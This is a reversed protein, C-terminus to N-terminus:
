QQPHGFGIDDIFVLGSGGASPNDRDGLGITLTRVNNLNVGALDSFPILWETWGSRVAADPHTVVAVNGGTDEVVVYMTELDNGGTPQEVGIEAVQWNGAVNGTTSIDSFVAGTAQDANHSTLALGILVPDSMTVDVADTGQQQWNEGDASLYGTFTNGERVIRVYYPPAIDTLTRSSDSAADAEARWQFTAGDGEGGTIAILANVAGAETGQRIMVGGKVWGNPAADIADVRATLSGDGTLTKYAYRFEDATNWIDAGIANMVITGDATELFPPAQGAVYLRLTDAGNKDLDMGGLDFEAESYYPAASNDYALPMSQGGRHVVTKEAFPAMLYGVTSASGNIWGDIWADYILNDEDNYSEMDDIVAYAQTTFDWLPGEWTAIAEAENVENVRWYYTQGFQLSDPTLEAQTVADALALAEPHTGLYVEHVAAERGARWSLATAPDVGTAGGVPQPQRPQVPISLFRIESLGYQGLTGWGSEITLRVFRAAVGQMDITTNATYTATATARAFEVMGLSMWEAGDLSYEVMVDKVGFGLVIEFQVNYNWVLMQHLKYVGDFEYQIYPSEADTPTILWMDPADISHEDNANLGSGNVTNEPGAGTGSVVNSTAVVDTIPYAFPEVTFSWLDGKFVARDPTANVEDVRWSYTQGFELVAPPAYTPASQGESVLVGLPNDRDAAEVDAPSTGLYVDHAGAFIGEAWSLATDRPVDTQGDGPVPASALETAAGPGGGAMVEALEDMTLARNYIRVDDILGDWARHGDPDNAPQNGIAAPVAGDTAVATGGKAARGTEVANVYTYATTGDWRATIFQWEGAVIVGATDILTLTTNSEDTKLRFRANVENNTGLMWWHGDATAATNSKSIIRADHQSFTHPNMWATITIGAGVVDMTGIDVLDSEDDAYLFELCYGRQDWGPAVWTPGVLTGEHGNRSSDGAVTGSGEDFKWWGVLGSDAAGVSGPFMLVAVFLLCVSLHFRASM